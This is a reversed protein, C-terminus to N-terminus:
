EEPIILTEEGRGAESCVAEVTITDKPMVKLPIDVMMEAASTQSSYYYPVPVEKNRTVTIKRIYHKRMNESVHKVVVHLSGKQADYTLEITSPPRAQALVAINLSLVAVMIMRTINKAISM